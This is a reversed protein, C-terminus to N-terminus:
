PPTDAPVDPPTDLAPPPTAPVLAANQGPSGSPGDMHAVAINPDVRDLQRWRERESRARRLADIVPALGDPLSRWIALGVLGGFGLVITIAVAAVLAAGSAHSLFGAITGAFGLLASVSAAISRATM